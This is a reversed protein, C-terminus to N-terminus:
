LYKPKKMKYVYMPAIIIMIAISTWQAVSFGYIVNEIRLFEIMFRTPAYLMLMWMFTFGDFKSHKRLKLLLLFIILANIMSYMQAAHVFYGLKTHFVGLVYETAKGGCCGAFFCGIRGIALGAMTAPAFIDLLKLYEPKKRFDYVKSLRKKWKNNKRLRYIQLYIWGSIFAGIIGGYWVVGATFFRALSYTTYHPNYPGLFFMIKAGLLGAAAIFVWFGIITKRSIGEKKGLIWAILLGILIGACITFLYPAFGIGYIDLIPHPTYNFM